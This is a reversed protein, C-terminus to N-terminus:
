TPRTSPLSGCYVPGMLVGGAVAGVVVGLGLPTTMGGISIGGISIGSMSIGSIGSMLPPPQDPPPEPEAAPSSRMAWSGSNTFADDSVELPQADGTHFPDLLRYGDDTGSILMVMHHGSTM